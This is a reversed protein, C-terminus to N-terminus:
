IRKRGRNIAYVEHVYLDYGNEDATLQKSKMLMFTMDTKTWSWCCTHYERQDVARRTHILM